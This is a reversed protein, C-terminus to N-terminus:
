TCVHLGIKRSDHGSSVDPNRRSCRPFLEMVLGTSRPFSIVRVESAAMALTVPVPVSKKSLKETRRVPVNIFGKPDQKINSKTHLVSETVRPYSDVTNSPAGM